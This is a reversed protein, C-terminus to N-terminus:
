PEPRALREFQLAASRVRQREEELQQFLLEVEENTSIGAAQKDTEGGQLIVGGVRGAEQDYLKIETVLLRALQRAEEKLDKIREESASDPPSTEAELRAVEATFEKEGPITFANAQATRLRVERRQLILASVGSLLSGVGAIGGLCLVLTEINM